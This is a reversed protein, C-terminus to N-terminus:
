FPESKYRYLVLSKRAEEEILNLVFEVIHVNMGARKRITDQNQCSTFAKKIVLVFELEGLDEM